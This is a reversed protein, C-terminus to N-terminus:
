LVTLVNLPRRPIPALPAGYFDLIGEFFLIFHEAVSRAAGVIRQANEPTVVASRACLRELVTECHGLELDLFAHKRFAQFLGSAFPYNETLHNYFKDVSERRPRERSPQMIGFAAAYSFSDAAALETLHNILARTSALPPAAIVQDSDLGSAVLGDLFMVSHNWEEIYHRAILERTVADDRCYAVGAAMYENAAEVFHYFEVGWGLVLTAQAKRSLIARWFPQAFIEKSWFNCERFFASLFEETSRAEIAASADLVLDDEALINFIADLEAPPAAVGNALDELRCFGDLRPVLCKLVRASRGSFVYETEETEALLDGGQEAFKARSSILPLSSPRLRM